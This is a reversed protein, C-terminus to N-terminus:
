WPIPMKADRPSRVRYDALFEKIAALDEARILIVDPPEAYGRHVFFRFGAGELLTQVLAIDAQGLGPIPVLTTTDIGTERCSSAGDDPSGREICGLRGVHRPM